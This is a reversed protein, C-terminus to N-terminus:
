PLYFFGLWNKGYLSSFKLPTHGYSTPPERTRGLLPTTVQICYLEPFFQYHAASLRFNTLPGHDREV